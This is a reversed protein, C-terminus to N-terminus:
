THRQVVFGLFSLAFLSNWAFHWPPFIAFGLTAVAPPLIMLAFLVLYLLLLRRTTPDKRLAASDRRVLALTLFAIPICNIHVMNIMLAEREYDALYASVATTVFLSSIIVAIHLSRGPDAIANIALYHMAVASATLALVNVDFAAGLDAEPFLLYPLGAVFAAHLAQLFAVIVFLMTLWSFGGTLLLISWLGVAMLAGVAATTTIANWPIRASSRIEVVAALANTGAFRIHLDEIRGREIAWTIPVGGGACASRDLSRSGCSALLVLRNEARDFLHIDIQKTYGPSFGVILPESDSYMVTRSREFGIWLEDTTYGLSISNGMPLLSERDGPDFVAGPALTRYVIEIDKVAAAQATLPMLVVPMLALLSLILARVLRTPEPWKLANM